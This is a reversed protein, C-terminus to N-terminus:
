RRWRVQVVTLNNTPHGDKARRLRPLWSFGAFEPDAKMGHANDGALHVNYRGHPYVKRVASHLLSFTCTEQLHTHWPERDIDVILEVVNEAFKGFSRGLGVDDAASYGAILVEFGLCGILGGALADRDGIGGAVDLFIDNKGLAM